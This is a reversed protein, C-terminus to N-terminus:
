PKFEYIIEFIKYDIYLILEWFLIITSCIILTKIATNKLSKINLEM